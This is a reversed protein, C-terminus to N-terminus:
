KSTEMDAIEEIRRKHRALGSFPTSLWTKAVTVMEKQSM